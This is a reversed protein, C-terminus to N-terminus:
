DSDRSINQGLQAVPNPDADAAIEPANRADDRGAQRAAETVKLNRVRVDIKLLVTSSVARLLLKGLDM